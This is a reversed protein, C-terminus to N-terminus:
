DIPPLILKAQVQNTGEDFATVEFELVELIFNAVDGLQEIMEIKLAEELSDIDALELLVGRITEIIGLRADALNNDMTTM